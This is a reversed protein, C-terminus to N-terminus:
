TAGKSGSLKEMMEFLAPEDRSPKTTREVDLLRANKAKVAEIAAVKDSADTVYLACHLIPGGPRAKAQAAQYIRKADGLNTFVEFGERIKPGAAVTLRFVYLM